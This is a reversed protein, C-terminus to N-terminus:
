KIAKWSESAIKFAGPCGDLTITKTGLDTYQDSTYQQRFSVEYRNNALQTVKINDIAIQQNPRNAFIRAKYDKWANHDRGKPDVFHGAYRDIYSNIDGREWANVWGS